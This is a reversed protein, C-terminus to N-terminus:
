KKEIAEAVEEETEVHDVVMTTVKGEFAQELYMEEWNMDMSGVPRKRREEM